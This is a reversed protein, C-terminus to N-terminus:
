LQSTTMILLKRLAVIITLMDDFEQSGGLVMGTMVRYDTLLKDVMDDHSILAFRIASLNTTRWISVTAASTATIMNVVKGHYNTAATLLLEEDRIAVGTENCRGRMKVEAVAARSPATRTRAM